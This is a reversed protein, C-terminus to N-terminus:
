KKKKTSPKALTFSAIFKRTIANANRTPNPKTMVDFEVKWTSSNIKKGKIFGDGLAHWGRDPCFCGLLFAAKITTDTYYFSKANKPVSFIIKEVYDDDTRDPHKDARMMYEFVLDNGNIVEAFFNHQADENLSVTKNPTITYWKGGKIVAAEQAQSKAVFFILILLFLKRM